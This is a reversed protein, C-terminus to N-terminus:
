ADSRTSGLLRASWSGARKASGVATHRASKPLCPRSAASACASDTRSPVTVRDGQVIKPKRQPRGPKGRIPPIAEVLADLQTIDNSNAGSLIVALPIGQADVILHHKSGCRAGTRQTRAPKKGALMARVPSSDVIARAMDLEGRRRLEALTHLIIQGRTLLYARKIHDREDPSRLPPVVASLLLSILSLFAAFQPWAKKTVIEYVAALKM